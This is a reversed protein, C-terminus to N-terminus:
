VGEESNAAIGAMRRPDVHRDYEEGAMLGLAIAADRPTTDDHLEKTTIQSVKDYGIVPNLVTALLGNSVNAALKPRDDDLDHVLRFALMRIGDALIRISQLVNYILVPKEGNLEFSGFM